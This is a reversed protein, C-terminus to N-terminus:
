PVTQTDIDEMRNFHNLWKQKYQALKNKITGEKLRKLIDENRKHDALNYKAM